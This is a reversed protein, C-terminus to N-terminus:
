CGHVIIDTHLIIQKMWTFSTRFTKLRDTSLAGKGVKLGPKVADTVPGSQLEAIVAFLDEDICVSAGNADQISEATRHQM